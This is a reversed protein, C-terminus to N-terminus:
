LTGAPCTTSSRLCGICARISRRLTIPGHQVRGALRKRRGYFVLALREVHQLSNSRSATPIRMTASTGTPAKRDPPMSEETTTARIRCILEMDRDSRERDTEAFRAMVLRLVRFGNRTMETAFMGFKIDSGVSARSTIGPM